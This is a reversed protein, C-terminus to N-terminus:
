KQTDKNRSTYIYVYVYGDISAEQSIRAKNTLTRILTDKNNKNNNYYQQHQQQQQEKTTVKVYCDVM